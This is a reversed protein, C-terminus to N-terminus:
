ISSAKLSAWSSTSLGDGDSDLLAKGRAKSSFSIAFVWAGGTHYTEVPKVGCREDRRRIALVLKYSFPLCDLLLRRTHIQNPTDPGRRLKFKSMDPTLDSRRVEPRAPLCQLREEMTMDPRGGTTNTTILDPCRSRIKANVQLVEGDDDRAANPSTHQSCPCPGHDGAKYAGYVPGCDDASEPLDPNSERGQIRRHVRLLHDPPM